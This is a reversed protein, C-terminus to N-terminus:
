SISMSKMRRICQVPNEKTLTVRQCRCNERLYLYPFEDVNGDNWKIVLCENENKYVNQAKCSLTASLKFCRRSNVKNNFWLFQTRVFRRAILSLMEPM